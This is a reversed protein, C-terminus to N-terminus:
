AIEATIVYANVGCTGKGRAYRFFGKEGWNSNWSNKLVWYDKGNETGYGVLTVGHNLGAPNCQSPTLDVIGTRYSFLPNANIAVSLPGNSFLMEKMEKEDKTKAVFHNGTVVAAIKTKDFKCTQQVGKYPYDQTTEIGGAQQIYQMGWEMWGGGCASDKKDCDVIQQESFQKFQGHKIQYIGELNGVISFAWCSGCSGQDKVDGVAGHDRWDHTDPANVKSKAVYPTAKKLFKELSPVNLNLYTKSFDEFSMDWFKTMGSDHGEHHHVHNMQVRFNVQFNAFAAMYEEMSDYSKNFDQTFKQFQKFHSEHTFV